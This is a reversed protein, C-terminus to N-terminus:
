YYDAPHRLVTHAGASLLLYRSLRRRECVGRCVVPIRAVNVGGGGLDTVGVAGMGCLTLCGVGTRLLCSASVNLWSAPWGFRGKVVGGSRLWFGRRRVRRRM